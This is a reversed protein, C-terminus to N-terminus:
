EDPWSRLWPAPPWEDGREFSVRHGDYRLLEYSEGISCPTLVRNTNTWLLWAAFAGFPLGLWPRRGVWLALGAAMSVLAVQWALGRGLLIVTCGCECDLDVMLEFALFPTLASLGVLVAFGCRLPSTLKQSRLSGLGLVMLGCWVGFVM